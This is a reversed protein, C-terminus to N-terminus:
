GAGPTLFHHQLSVKGRRLPIKQIGGWMRHFLVNL